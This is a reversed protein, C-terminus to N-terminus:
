PEGIGIQDLKKRPTARHLGLRRAAVIWARTASAAAVALVVVLLIPLLLQLRIPWRM